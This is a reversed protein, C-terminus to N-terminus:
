SVQEKEPTGSVDAGGTQIAEEAGAAGADGALEEGRASGDVALGELELMQELVMVDANLARLDDQLLKELLQQFGRTITPFVREELVSPVRQAVAGTLRSFKQHRNLALVTADMLADFAFRADPIHRPREKFDELINEVTAAIAQVSSRAAPTSLREADREIRAVRAKGDALEQALECADLGDVINQEPNQVPLLMSVGFYVGLALALSILLFIQWVFVFVLLAIVAAGGAILGSQVAFDGVRKAFDSTDPTKM